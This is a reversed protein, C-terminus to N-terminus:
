SIIKFSFWLQYSGSVWLWISFMPNKRPSFGQSLSSCSTPLLNGPQPASSLWGWFVKHKAKVEEAKFAGGPSSWIVTRLPFLLWLPLTKPSAEAKDFIVSTNWPSTEPAFLPQPSTISSCPFPWSRSCVTLPPILLTHVRHQMFSILQWSLVM